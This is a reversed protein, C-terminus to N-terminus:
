HKFLQEMAQLPVSKNTCYQVYTLYGHWHLDSFFNKDRTEYDASLSVTDLVGRSKGNFQLFGRVFGSVWTGALVLIAIAILRRILKM